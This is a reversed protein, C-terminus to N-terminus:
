SLRKKLQSHAHALLLQYNMQDAGEGILHGMWQDIGYNDDPYKLTGKLMGAAMARAGFEVLQLKWRMRDIQTATLKAAIEPNLKVTATFMEPNIDKVLEQWNEVSKTGLGTTDCSVEIETSM